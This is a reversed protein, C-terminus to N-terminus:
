RSLPVMLLYLCFFLLLIIKLVLFFCQIFSINMSKKCAIFLLIISYFLGFPLLYQRNNFIFTLAYCCFLPFFSYVILNFNGEWGIRRILRFSRMLISVILITFFPIFIESMWGSFGRVLTLLGPILCCAFLFLITEITYGSEKKM